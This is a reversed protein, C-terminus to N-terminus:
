EQEGSLAIACTKIYFSEGQGFKRLLMEFHRKKHSRHSMICFMLSVFLPSHEMPFDKRSRAVSSIRRLVKFSVACAFQRKALLRSLEQRLTSEMRLIFAALLLLAFSCFGEVAVSILFMPDLQSRTLLRQSQRLETGIINFLDASYLVESMCRARLAGLTSRGVRIPNHVKSWTSITGIANRTM